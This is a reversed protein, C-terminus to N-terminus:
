QNADQLDIVSIDPDPNTPPMSGRIQIRIWMLIDHIKKYIIVVLM